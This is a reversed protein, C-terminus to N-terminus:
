ECNEVIFSRAWKGENFILDIISLNSVFGLKEKFVQNYTAIQAIETKNKLREDKDQPTATFYQKSYPFPYPIELIEAIIKMSKRHVEELTNWELLYFEEILPYFSSFYPSSSYCTKISQLHERKFSSHPNIAVKGTARNIKSPKIVPVTLKLKGNPGLIETHNRQSQKIYNEHLDIIVNKREFLLTWYFIDGFFFAPLITM